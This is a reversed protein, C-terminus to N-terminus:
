HHGTEHPEAAHAEEAHPAAQTDEHHLTEATEHETEAVPVSDIVADPSVFTLTLGSISSLDGDYHSAVPLKEEVAIHDQPAELIWEHHTTGAEDVLSFKVNPLSKEQGSMNVVHGTIELVGHNDKAHFRDFILGQADVVSPAKSFSFVGFEAGGFALLVVLLFALGYNVLQPVFRSFGERPLAPLNVKGATQNPADYDPKISDPIDTEDNGAVQDGTYEQEEQFPDEQMIENEPLSDDDSLIDDDSEPEVEQSDDEVSTEIDQEVTDTDTDTDTDAETELMQFWENACNACRVTRGETGISADPVLYRTSCSSCVVIM